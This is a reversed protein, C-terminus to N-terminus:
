ATDGDPPMGAAVNADYGPFPAVLGDEVRVSHAQESSLVPGLSSESAPDTRRHVWEEVEAYDGYCKAYSLASFIATAAERSSSAVQGQNFADRAAVVIEAEALRDSIREPVRELIFRAMSLIELERQTFIPDM